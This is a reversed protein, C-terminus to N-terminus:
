QWECVRRVVQFPRQWAGVRDASGGVQGATAGVGVGARPIVIRRRVVDQLWAQQGATAGSGDVVGRAGQHTHIYDSM